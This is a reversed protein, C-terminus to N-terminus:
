RLFLIQVNLSLGWTSLRISIERPMEAAHLQMATVLEEDLAKLDELTVKAGIILWLSDSPPTFSSWAITVGDVM